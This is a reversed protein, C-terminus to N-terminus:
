AATFCYYKIERDFRPFVAFGISNLRFHKSSVCVKIRFSSKTHHSSNLRVSSLATFHMASSLVGCHAEQIARGGWEASFVSTWEERFGGWCSCKRSWALHLIQVNAPDWGRCHPLYCNLIKNIKTGVARCGKYRSFRTGVSLDPTSISCKSNLEFRESHTQLTWRGNIKQNWKQFNHWQLAIRSWIQGYQPGYCKLGPKKLLIVIGPLILRLNTIQERINMNWHHGTDLIDGWDWQAGNIERVRHEWSGRPECRWSWWSLSTVLWTDHTMHWTDHSGLTM